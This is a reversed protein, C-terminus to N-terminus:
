SQHKQEVLKIGKAKRDPSKEIEFVEAIIISFRDGCAFDIIRKDDFFNIPGPNIRKKIDNTGLCGNRNEGM